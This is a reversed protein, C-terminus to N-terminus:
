INEIKLCKLLINSFQFYIFYIKGITRKFLGNLGGISEPRNKNYILNLMEYANKSKSDYFLCDKFAYM